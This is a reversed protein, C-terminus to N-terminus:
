QGADLGPACLVYSAKKEDQHWPSFLTNL